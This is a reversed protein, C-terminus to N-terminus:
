KFTLQNKGKSDLKLGNKKAVEKAKKTESNVDGKLNVILRDGEVRVNSDELAKNMRHLMASMKYSESMDAANAYYSVIRSLQKYATELDEELKKSEKAIRQFEEELSELGRNNQASLQSSLSEDLKGFLFRRGGRVVAGLKEAIQQTTSSSNKLKTGWMRVKDIVESLRVQTQESITTNGKLSDKLSFKGDVVKAENLQERRPDNYGKFVNPEKGMAKNKLTFTNNHVYDYIDFPKRKKM